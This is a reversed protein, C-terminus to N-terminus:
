LLRDMILAIVGGLLAGIMVQRRTHGVFEKLTEEPTLEGRGFSNILELMNNIVRAQKGTEQRVGMADHMVVLALVTAIAFVPSDWGCRLGTMVAVATVTASHSSPMGGDGLLREWNFRKNIVLYIIAKIFQSLLWAVCGTILIKNQPIM